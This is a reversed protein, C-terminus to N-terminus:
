RARRPRFPPPKSVTLTSKERTTALPQPVGILADLHRLDQALSTVADGSCFLIAAYTPHPNARQARWASGFTAKSELVLV